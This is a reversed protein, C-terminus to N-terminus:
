SRANKEWLKRIEALTCFEVDYQASLKEAFVTLDHRLRLVDEESRAYPSMGPALENSHFMM